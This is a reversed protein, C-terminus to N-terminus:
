WDWSTGFAKKNRPLTPDLWLYSAGEMKAQEFTTFLWDCSERIAFEVLTQILPEDNRDGFWLKLLEELVLHQCLLYQVFQVGANNKLRIMEEDVVNLKRNKL